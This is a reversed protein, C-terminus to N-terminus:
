GVTKKVANVLRPDTALQYLLHRNPSNGDLDSLGVDHPSAIVQVTWGGSTVYSIGVAYSGAETPGPAPLADKDVSYQVLQEGTTTPILSCKKLQGGWPSTLVRGAGDRCAVSPPRLPSLGTAYPVIWVYLDNVQGTRDTLRFYRGPHPSADPAAAEITGTEPPLISRLLALSPYWISPVSAAPAPRRTATAPTLVSYGGALVASAVLLSGVATRIGRRRRIRRGQAVAGPVLDPMPPETGTDLGGLAEALTFEYADASGNAGGVDGGHEAAM